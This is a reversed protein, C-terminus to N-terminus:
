EDKKNARFELRKGVNDNFAILFVRKNPYKLRLIELNQEVALQLSDLRSIYTENENTIYKEGTELEFRKMKSEFSKMCVLGDIKETVNMSGSIDICFVIISDDDIPIDKPSEVLYTVDDETPM